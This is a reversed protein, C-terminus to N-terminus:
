RSFDFDFKPQCKGMISPFSGIPCPSAPVGISGTSLVDEKKSLDLELCTPIVRGKQFGITCDPAFKHGIELCKFESGTWFPVLENESKENADLCINPECKPEGKLTV